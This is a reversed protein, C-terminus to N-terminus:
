KLQFLEDHLIEIYKKFSKNNEIYECEAIVTPSTTKLETDVFNSQKYGILKFHKITSDFGFELENNKIRDNLINLIRKSISDNLQETIM